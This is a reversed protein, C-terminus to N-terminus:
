DDYYGSDLEYEEWSYEAKGKKWQKAKEEYEAIAKEANATSSHVSMIRFCEEYEIIMYEYVVYLKM